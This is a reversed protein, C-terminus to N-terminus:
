FSIDASIESLSHSWDSMSAVDFQKGSKGKDELGKFNKKQSGIYKQYKSLKGIVKGLNMTFDDALKITESDRAGFILTSSAQVDIKKQMKNIDQKLKSIVWLSGEMFGSKKYRNELKTERAKNLKSNGGIELYKLKLDTMRQNMEGKVFKVLKEENLLFVENLKRIFEILCDDSM